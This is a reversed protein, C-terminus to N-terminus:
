ADVALAETVPLASDTREEAAVPEAVAVPEPAAPALPLALEVAVTVYAERGTSRESPKM